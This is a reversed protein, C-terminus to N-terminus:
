YYERRNTENRFLRPGTASFYIAIERRILLHAHKQTHDIITPSLKLACAKLDAGSKADHPTM